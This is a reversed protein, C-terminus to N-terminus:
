ISTPLVLDHAFLCGHGSLGSNGYKRMNVRVLCFEILFSKMVSNKAFAYNFIHKKLDASRVMMHGVSNLM